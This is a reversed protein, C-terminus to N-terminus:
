SVAERDSTDFEGRALYIPLDDGLHMVDVIEEYIANRHELTLVVSSTSSTAM